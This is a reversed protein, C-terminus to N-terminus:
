YADYLGEDRLDGAGDVQYAADLDQYGRNHGHGHAQGHGQGHGYERPKHQERYALRRDRESDYGDRGYAGQAPGGGRSRGGRGGRGRFGDDRDRGRFGGYQDRDRKRYTDDLRYGYGGRGGGGGGDGRRGGRGRQQNRDQRGSAGPGSIAAPPRYDRQNNRGGGYPPRVDYTTPEDFDLAIYEAAETANGTQGEDSSSGERPRKRNANVGSTRVPVATPLRSSAPRPASFHKKPTTQAHATEEQELDLLTRERLEADFEIPPGTLPQWNTIDREQTLHLSLHCALVIRLQDLDLSVRQTGVVPEIKVAWLGMNHSGTHTVRFRVTNNLGGLLHLQEPSLAGPHIVAHTSHYAIDKQHSANPIRALCSLTRRDEDSTIYYATYAVVEKMQWPLSAEPATGNVIAQNHLNIIRQVEAVETVEDLSTALTKVDVIDYWVRPRSIHYQRNQVARNFDEIVRRFQRAHNPRDEWIKIKEARTYTLLLSQILQTKFGMTSKVRQNTPTVEPKLCVMDFKLGKSKAMRLVLEAFSREARGTLLVALVDKQGASQRASAAIEENWWGQWARSEEKDLGDGTSALISSDHWWGGNIFPNPQVLKGIAGSTWILRNPLPSAFLTNDFDYIHIHRVRNVDPLSKDNSSWRKLATLSQLPAGNPPSGYSNSAQPAFPKNM